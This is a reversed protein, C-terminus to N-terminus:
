HCYLIHNLTVEWIHQGVCMCTLQTCLLEEEKTVFFFSLTHRVCNVKLMTSFLEPNKFFLRKLSTVPSKLRSFPLTLPRLIEAVSPSLLTCCYLPVGWQWRVNLLAQSSLDELSGWCRCYWSSALNLFLCHTTYKGLLALAATSHCSTLLNIWNEALHCQPVSM